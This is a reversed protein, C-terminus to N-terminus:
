IHVNRLYLTLSKAMLNIYQYKKEIKRKEKRGKIM